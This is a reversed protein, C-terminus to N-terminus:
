ATLGLEDFLAKIKLSQEYSLGGCHKEILVKTKYIFNDKNQKEMAKIVKESDVLCIYDTTTTWHGLGSHSNKAVVGDSVADLKKYKNGNEDILFKPTERCKINKVSGRNYTTHIIVYDKFCNDKPM